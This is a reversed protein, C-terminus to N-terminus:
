RLKFGNVGVYLAGLVVLTVISPIFGFFFPERPSDQEETQPVPSSDTDDTESVNEIDPIVETTQESTAAPDDDTENIIEPAPSEVPVDDEELITEPDSVAEITNAVESVLVQTFASRSELLLNEESEVTISWTGVSDPVLEDTFIGWADTSVTKQIMQADPGSYKLTLDSGELPPTFKGSVLSSVKISPKRNKASILPPRYGPLRAM